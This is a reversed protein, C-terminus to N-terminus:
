RQMRVENGLDLLLLLLLLLLTCRQSSPVCKKQNAAETPVM